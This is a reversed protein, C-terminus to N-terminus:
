SAGGEGNTAVPRPSYASGDLRSWQYDSREVGDVRVVADLDGPGSIGLRGPVFFAPGNPESFLVNGDLDLLDLAIHFSGGGGIRACFDVHVDLTRGSEYLGSWAGLPTQIAYAVSGDVTVVRIHFGPSDVPRHLVLRAEYSLKDRQAVAGAQRGDAGRLVASVVEASGAHSATRGSATGGPTTGGTATGGSARGGPGSGGPATLQHYLAIGQETPGDFAVRGHDLVVVRPCLLNVAHMSHSVFVTTTGSKTLDRMRELCRVQFGADGVALVEDVLLVDPDVHMAVSFGLRMFMGSSYFKVPVDVFEELEAFEIIQSFRAEVQQATLGLLMGNVMVNERGSMEQHFGVGVSLLPAIRGRIAMTGTTPQSVGALLRLMTSKGAGNRGIIGVTEAEGIQLDIDEVAWLDSAPVRRPHRLRHLLSREEIRQYRKSVDSLLVAPDAGDVTTAVTCASV